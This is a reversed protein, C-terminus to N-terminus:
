SLFSRGLAVCTSASHIFISTTWQLDNQAADRLAAVYRVLSDNGRRQLLNVTLFYTGGPVWARRYDPM